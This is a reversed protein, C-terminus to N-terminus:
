AGPVDIAPALPFARAFLRAVIVSIVGGGLIASLLLATAVGAAGWSLLALILVGQVIAVVTTVGSMLKTREAYFLFASLLTYWAQLAAYAALIRLPLAAPRFAEGGILVVVPVALLGLTVAGVVLLIGGLRIAVLVERRAVADGRSLREYLWPVWAQNVAAAVVMFVSALQLALFYHGVVVPVFGSGLALRDMSGMAVAAMAHPLLSVGFALVRRLMVRDVALTMRGTVRLWAVAGGGIALAAVAQALARGPWGMAVGGVLIVTMVGMVIGYGLQFSAYIFPRRITQAVTLGVALIAQGTASALLTWLWATDIAIWQEITGAALMGFIGVIASTSIIVTLAAGVVGPLTEAGDRYYSISVFGYANLGVLMVLVSVIALFSGIVGFDAPGLWRAVLPLLLFPIAANL